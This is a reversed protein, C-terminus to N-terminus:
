IARTFKFSCESEISLNNVTTAGNVTVTHGTAVIVNSSSSPVCSCDWTAPNEWNGSAISTIVPYITIDLEEAPASLGCATHTGIVSVNGNSGSGWDVTVTPTGQGSGLMGGTITWNYTYGTLGSVSYVVGTDGAAVAIEGSIVSTPLPHIDM